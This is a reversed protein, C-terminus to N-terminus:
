AGAREARFVENLFPIVAAAVQEPYQANPYHGAGDIM